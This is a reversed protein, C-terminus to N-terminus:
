KTVRYSATAHARTPVTPRGSDYLYACVYQTGTITGAHATPIKKFNGKVGFYVKSWADVSHGSFYSYGAKYDVFAQHGEALEKTACRKHDLYVQLGSATNAFGTLNIKFRQSQPVSRPVKVHVSYATSALAVAAFAAVATVAAAGAGLRCTGRRRARSM